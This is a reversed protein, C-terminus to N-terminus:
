LSHDLVVIEVQSPLSEKNIEVETSGAQRANGKGQIFEDVTSLPFGCNATKYHMPVMIKPNLQSMVKEAAPIDITFVGGIPSLLVDVQGIEKVQDDTLVHGLDGLHCIALDDVKIVFVTNPGRESGGSTDHFTGVGKVQVGKVEKMGEGEIIEPSGLGTTYNHDAHQSHSVTVIDATEKIPAYGIGGDFSGSEYPDTIIKTGDKATILFSAHGLWKVKM